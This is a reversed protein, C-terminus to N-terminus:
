EWPAKFDDDDDLEAAFSDPPPKEEEDKPLLLKKAQDAPSPLVEVEDVPVDGGEPSVGDWDFAKEEKPRDVTFAWNSYPLGNRKSVKDELRRIAVWDGRQPKEKLLRAKLATGYGWLTWLKDNADLIGIVPCEPDHQSTRTDVWKVQGVLTDGVDPIWAEEKELRDLEDLLDQRKSSM